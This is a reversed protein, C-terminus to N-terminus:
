LVKSSAMISITPKPWSSGKTPTTRTKRQHPTSVQHGSHGRRPGGSDPSLIAYLSHPPPAALGLSSDSTNPTILLPSAHPPSFARPRAASNPWVSRRRAPLSFNTTFPRGSLPTARLPASLHRVPGNNHWVSDTKFPGASASSTSRTTTSHSHPVLLLSCRSRLVHLPSPM